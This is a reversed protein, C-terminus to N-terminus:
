LQKPGSEPGWADRARPGNPFDAMFAVNKSSFNKATNQLSQKVAFILNVAFNETKATFLLVNKGCFFIRTLKLYKM